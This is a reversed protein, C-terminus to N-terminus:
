TMCGDAVGRRVWWVGAALLPFLLLQIYVFAVSRALAIPARGIWGVGPDRAKIVASATMASEWVM